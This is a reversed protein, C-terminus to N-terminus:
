TTHGLVAYIQTVAELKGIGTDQSVFGSAHFTNDPLCSFNLIM